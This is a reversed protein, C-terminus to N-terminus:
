RTSRSAYDNISSRRLHTVFIDSVSKRYCHTTNGGGDGLGSSSGNLTDLEQDLVLYTKSILLKKAAGALRAPYGCRSIGSRLSGVLDADTIADTTANSSYSARVYILSRM